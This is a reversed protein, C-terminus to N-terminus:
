RGAGNWERDTKQLLWVHDELCTLGKERFRPERALCDESHLHEIDCLGGFLRRVEDLTVSFPPGQMEETPYDLTVLLSRTGPEILRTLHEAYVPRMEPPLAVLAARDYVAAIVPLDVKKVSFFDACLIHIKEGRYLVAGPRQGLEYSLGNEVFFSKVAVESLEIGTVQFGQEALWLMDLSKGCLPVLINAGPSVGLRSVFRQLHRNVDQQHFGIEGREWREHWFDAKVPDVRTSGPSWFSTPGSRPHSPKIQLFANSPFKLEHAM